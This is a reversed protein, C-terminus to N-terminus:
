FINDLSLSEKEKIHDILFKLSAIEGTTLGKNKIKIYSDLKILSMNIKEMEEHDLVLMLKDSAKRWQVSLRSLTSKMSNWDNNDLNAEMHKLQSLLDQSLNSVFTYMIFWGSILLCIITISIIASKM